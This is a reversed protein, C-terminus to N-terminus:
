LVSITSFGCQTIVIIDCIDNFINPCTGIVEYTNKFNCVYARASEAMGLRGEM